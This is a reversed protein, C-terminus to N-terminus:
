LVSTNLTHKCAAIMFTPAAVVGTLMENIIQRQKKFAARHLLEVHDQHFTSANGGKGNSILPVGLMYTNTLSYLFSDAQYGYAAETCPSKKVFKGYYGWRTETGNVCCESSNSLVRLISTFVYYKVFLIYAYNCVQPLVLDRYALLSQTINGDM